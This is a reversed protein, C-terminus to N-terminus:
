NITNGIPPFTQRTDRPEINMGSLLRIVEAERARDLAESARRFLELPQQDGATSHALGISCRLTKRDFRIMELMLTDAIQEAESISTYPMSVSILSGGFVSLVDTSRLRGDLYQALQEMMKSSTQVDPSILMQCFASEIPALENPGLASLLEPAGPLVEIADNIEALERLIFVGGEDMPGIIGDVLLMHQGPRNIVFPALRTVQRLSLAEDITRAISTEAELHLANAWSRGICQSEDFLTAADTNLNTVFGDTDVFVLATGICTLATQLLQQTERLEKEVKFKYFAMEITIQLDRNEVPKIIYGFTSAAAMARGVTDEDSYATLFVVPIDREQQIELAVEIGDVGDKLHIDSLLLDPKLERALEIGDAGYAVGVVDWGMKTLRGQLERAVLAEDEIVLIKQM